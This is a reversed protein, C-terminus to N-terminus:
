SKAPLWLTIGSQLLIPQYGSRQAAEIIPAEVRGEDGTLIARPHERELFSDIRSHLPLHRIEAESESIFHSVRWAFPGTVFEKYIPLGSEVAFIPSLTLVKGTGGNSHVYSRILESEQRVRVPIWSEPRMLGHLMSSNRLPTGNISVFVAAVVFLRGASRSLATSRLSSLTYLSLLIVFPVLAFYYQTWTPTPAIFGICVFPLVLLLFVVEFRPRTANRKADIGLFILNSVCVLSIALQTPSCLFNDYFYKMKGILTMAIPYSMEQRYLTNLEPYGLNGFMFSEHSTFFFYIAPLNSLMGGVVFVFAYLGKERAAGKTFIALALLFPAVFPAFTLRIGVAMGLFIGSILFSQLPKDGRIARCHLLFATVACLVSSTHNWVHSSALVYLSSHFLLLVSAAPLILQNLNVTKNADAFLARAALFIAICIGLGCTVAFLRALLFPSNTSFFPAYIYALNPMHFYAFDQYPQLGYKAVVFASSMFQHEDHDIYGSAAYWISVIVLYIAAVVTVATASRRLQDGSM